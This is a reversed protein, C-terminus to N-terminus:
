CLLSVVPHWTTAALLAVVGLIVMGAPNGTMTSPM